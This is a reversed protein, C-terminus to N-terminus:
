EIYCFQSFFLYKFEYHVFKIKKKQMKRSTHLRKKCIGERVGLM